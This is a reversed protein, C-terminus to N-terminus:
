VVDSDSETETLYVTNTFNTSLKL